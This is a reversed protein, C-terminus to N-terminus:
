RGGRYRHGPGGGQGGRGFGPGGGAGGGAAHREFAPLHREQSADRLNQMVARIEDQKISKLFADYIAVNEKEAVAARRCCEVFAAPVEMAAPDYPDKPAKVNYRDMLSLLAAEHRGEAQVINTFPLRQGHKSIVARYFAQAKREDDLAALLARRTQRDLGTAIEKPEAKRQRANGAALCTSGALAMALAVM